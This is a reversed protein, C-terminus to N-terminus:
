AISEGREEDVIRPVPRDGSLRSFLLHDQWRGAIKLYERACGELRFGCRELLAVSRMNTPLTAAEVRHLGRERLLFHCVADVAESMFGRGAHQEGMWYGITASQSVGRRINSVTLGGLLTDTSREFLFYPLAREQAISQAHVRLRARYTSRSLEDVTWLPEWPQLFRASGRRLAAWAAHDGVEPARLTLRRTEIPPVDPAASIKLLGLRSM